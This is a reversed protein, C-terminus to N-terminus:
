ACVFRRGGDNGNEQAILQGSHHFGNDVTSVVLVRLLANQADAHIHQRCDGLVGGVAVTGRGQGKGAVLELQTHQARGLGNSLRVNSDVGNHSLLQPLKGIFQFIVLTTVTSGALPFVITWFARMPGCGDIAAAEEYTPSIDAFCPLLYFVNFPISTVVYIMILTLKSDGMNLYSIITFLPMIIMVGPVGLGIVLLKQISSNLAFKFRALGYACPASILVSLFVSSSSYLLSNMFATMLHGQKIVKTFNEWHLGSELLKDSFIEKTTSLAAMLIWGLMAFIFICWLSLLIYGPILRKQEQLQLGSMGLKKQKNKM